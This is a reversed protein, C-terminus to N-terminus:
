HFYWNRLISSERDWAPANSSSSSSRGLLLLQFIPPFAIEGTALRPVIMLTRIRSLTSLRIFLDSLIIYAPRTAHIISIRLVYWIKNQFWVVPPSVEEFM